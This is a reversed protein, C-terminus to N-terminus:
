HIHFRQREREAAARAFLGGLRAYRWAFLRHRWRRGLRGCGSRRRARRARAYALGDAHADVPEVPRQVRGALYCDAPLGLGRVELREFRELGHKCVLLTQQDLELGLQVPQAERRCLALCEIAVNITDEVDTLVGALQDFGLDLAELLVGGERAL